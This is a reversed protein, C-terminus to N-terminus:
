KIIETPFFNFMKFIEDINLNSGKPLNITAIGGFDSQWFGGNKMIEDGFLKYETENFQSNLFFRRTIFESHKTIRFIELKNDLGLKTEFETGFTLRPNQIDNETMRYLNESLKLAYFSSSIKLRTDYVTIEIEESEM